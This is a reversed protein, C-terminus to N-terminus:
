DAMPRSPRLEAPGVAWTAIHRILHPAHFHLKAIVEVRVPKFTKISKTAENPFSFPKYISRVANKKKKEDQYPKRSVEVASLEIVTGNYFVILFDNKALWILAGDGHQM